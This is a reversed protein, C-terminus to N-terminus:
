GPRQAGQGSLILNTGSSPTRPPPRIQAKQHTTPYPKESIIKVHM